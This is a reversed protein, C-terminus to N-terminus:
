LGATTWLPPLSPFYTAGPGQYLATSLSAPPQVFRSLARIRASPALGQPTPEFFKNGGAGDPRLTPPLSLSAIYLGIHEWFLDPLIALEDPLSLRSALTTSIAAPSAPYGPASLIIRHLVNYSPIHPRLLDHWQPPTLLHQAQPTFPKCSPGLLALLMWDEALCVTYIPALILTQWTPLLQPCLTSM